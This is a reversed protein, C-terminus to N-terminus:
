DISWRNKPLRQVNAYYLGSKPKEPVFVMSSAAIPLVLLSAAVVTSATWSTM